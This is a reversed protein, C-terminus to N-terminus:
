VNELLFWPMVSVVTSFMGLIDQKTNYDDFLKTTWSTHACCVARLRRGGLRSYQPLGSIHQFTESSYLTLYTVLYCHKDRLRNAM